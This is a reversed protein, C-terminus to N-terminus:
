KPRDNGHIGLECLREVISFSDDASTLIPIGEQEAKEITGQEIASGETVIICALGLLSAVAVINSHSQLTVWVNGAQARAMVCSLLDSTYGGTVNGGLSVGSTVVKLDLQTAVDAVTIM